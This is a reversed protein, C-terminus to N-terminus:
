LFSTFSPKLPFTPIAAPESVPEDQHWVLAPLERLLDKAGVVIDRHDTGLHQAVRRAFPLENYPGPADFGVSFTQVPRRLLRSMIAVVVSSDVGGSLLAGLPVESMLRLKVSETLRSELEELAEPEDLEHKPEYAVSWFRRRVAGSAEVALTHGPELKEIGQFLTAPSAVYRLTLHEVLAPRNVAREVGPFAFLAKIESAAALAGGARTFYLPKIGVRDRALLLRRRRRDWLAFAFMGRLREVCADGWEEYGHVISETDSHTRYRHGKATLERRLSEHNYIEGNYAIWITGDENSLPQAGHAVDVISLRRFALGAGPEVHLGVDDPGRHRMADAATELWAREPPRGDPDFWAAFGCM